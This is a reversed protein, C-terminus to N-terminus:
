NPYIRGLKKAITRLGVYSGDDDYAFGDNHEESKISRRVAEYLCNLDHREIEVTDGQYFTPTETQATAESDGGYKRDCIEKVLAQSEELPRATKAMLELEELSLDKLNKNM